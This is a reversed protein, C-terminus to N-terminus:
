KDTSQSITPVCGGQKQLEQDHALELLIETQRLSLRAKKHEDDFCVVIYEIQCDANAKGPNSVEDGWLLAEGEKGKARNWIALLQQITLYIPGRM